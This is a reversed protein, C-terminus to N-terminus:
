RALLLCWFALWGAHCSAAPDPAAVAAAAHSPLAECLWLLGQLQSHKMLSLALKRWRPLLLGQCPLLLRCVRHAHAHLGWPQPQPLV